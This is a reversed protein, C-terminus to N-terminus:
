RLGQRRQSPQLSIRQPSRGTRPWLPQRKYVDTAIEDSGLPYVGGCCQWEEIEELEFGLARASVRAYADLAQAKNKLTCGPYYSYRM